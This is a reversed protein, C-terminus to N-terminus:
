VLAGFRKTPLLTKEMSCRRLTFKTGHINPAPTASAAAAKPAHELLLLLPVCGGFSLPGGASPPPPGGGAQEAVGPWNGAGLQSLACGGCHMPGAPQVKEAAWHPSGVVHSGKVLLMPLFGSLKRRRRMM